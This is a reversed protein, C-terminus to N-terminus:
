FTVNMTVRWFVGNMALSGLRARSDTGLVDEEDRDAIPRLSARGTLGYGVEPTLWFRVRRSDWDGHPALLVSAGASLDTAFAWQVDELTDPASPDSLRAHLAAAGPAVKAFAHLWPTVHFRGEIPATLRQMTIKTDLGRAGSSRTGVDWAGGISLSLKRSSLLVYSGALSLQGLVDNKAFADFGPDDIYGARGGISLRV